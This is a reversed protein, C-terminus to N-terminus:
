AREVEARTPVSTQAGMRTVAIASARTAFAVADALSSGEVLAVCLAGNFTDGAATTDVAAVRQAPVLRSSEGDRVFAGDAGLTIVVNRVGKGALVAAARAASEADVIHVGSLSEAETRNPTILYLSPYFEDPIPAAPAPNLVVKVGHRSALAVVRGITQIPIEMQMLVIAAGAILEEAAEIDAASLRANAGPAVVICNEAAGDVTILAVGSPADGTRVAYSTDIGEAAYGALSTEGFTDDGVKCLFATDGGLRAAAVAQNAGKGGQSMYFDGGLVTEGPRPLQATKIVMDTNSSGIVVIKKSHNM